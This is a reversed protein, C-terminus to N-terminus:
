CRTIGERVVQFSLLLASCLRVVVAEASAPHLLHLHLNPLFTVSGNNHTYDAPTIYGDVCTHIPRSM